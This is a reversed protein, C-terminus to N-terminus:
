QISSRRKPFSLEQRRAGRANERAIRRHKLMEARGRSYWEAEMKEFFQEYLKSQRTSLLVDGITEMAERKGSRARGRDPLPDGLGPIDRESGGIDPPNLGMSQYLKNRHVKHEDRVTVGPRTTGYLSFELLTRLKNREAVEVFPFPADVKSYPVMFM